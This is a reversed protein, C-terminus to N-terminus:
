PLRRTGGIWAATARTLVAARCHPVRPDRRASHSTKLIRTSLRATPAVFLRLIATAVTQHAMEAENQDM